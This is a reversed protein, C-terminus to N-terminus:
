FMPPFQKESRQMSIWRTETFTDMAWRGGHRGIGSNKSGGFPCHPEDNVTQDNIHCMGTELRYAIALGRSEDSTMVGSSLGYASGNSIEVAEDDDEFPIVIAVPGFTEEHWIQMDSTVGTVVTPAVFLGDVTGGVEIKAGKAVADDLQAKVKAAQKENILPGVPLSKDATVDGVKLGGVLHTFKELFSDFVSNQVLVREVSMCIQGAHINSGFNAARASVDLDADDCVILADKGGLEVCCKKLLGACKVAIAKGVASSGTFSVGKVKPNEILEDGVEAVKARSATVVNLVGSPLGIAEAIEAFLLGGCYPSEESPKLVVTNGAALAFFIGRATLILPANWPTIVTVVGIPRRVALNMKGGGSPMIEGEPGYSAAVAARIVEPTKKVQFMAIGMAAGTEQALAAIVAPGRSLLEARFKELFDARETFALGSWSPFAANAADVAARASERSGDAVKSYLTQNSPNIVDFTDDKNDWEGGIFHGSNDLM